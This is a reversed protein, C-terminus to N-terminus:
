PAPHAYTASLLPHRAAGDSQVLNRVASGIFGGFPTGALGHSQCRLHFDYLAMSARVACVRYGHAGAWSDARDLDAYLAVIGAADAFERQVGLLEPDGLDSAPAIFSAERATVRYVGAPRGESRLAFVFVELPGTDGDLGWDESDRRLATRVLGLVLDTRVPADAYRLSSRRALLTAHLDRAPDEGPEEVAVPDAAPFPKPSRHEARGDGTPARTAFADLLSQLVSPDSRM